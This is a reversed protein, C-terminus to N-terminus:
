NEENLFEMFVSRQGLGAFILPSKSDPGFNFYSSFSIALSGRKSLQYNTSSLCFPILHDVGSAFIGGGGGGGVSM